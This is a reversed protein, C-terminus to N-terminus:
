DLLSKSEGRMFAGHLKRYRKLADDHYGMMEIIASEFGAFMNAIAEDSFGDDSVESVIDAFLRQYNQVSNYDNNM